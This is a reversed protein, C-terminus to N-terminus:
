VIEESPRLDITNEYPENLIKGGWHISVVDLKDDYDKDLDKLLQTAKPCNPCRVGTSEEVLVHKVQPSPVEESVYTTDTTSFDPEFNIDPGIEDTNCSFLTIALSSALFYIKKM